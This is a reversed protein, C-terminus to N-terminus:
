QDLEKYSIFWHPGIFFGYNAPAVMKSLSLSSVGDLLTQMFATFITMILTKGMHHIKLLSLWKPYEAFVDSDLKFTSVKSIITM